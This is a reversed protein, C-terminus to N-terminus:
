RILEDHGTVMLDVMSNYSVRGMADVEVDQMLIDIEQHTMADGVTALMQRLESEPITGNSEADLLAFAKRAEKDQQQPSSFKKNYFSKFAGFDVNDDVNELAAKLETETPNKGLARIGMALDAKSIAGDGDVDFAVFCEKIESASVKSM